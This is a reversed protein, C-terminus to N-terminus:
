PFVLRSKKSWGVLCMSSQFLPVIMCCRARFAVITRKATLSWFGPWFDFALSWWSHRSFRNFSHFFPSISHKNRFPRMIWRRICFDRLFLLGGFLALIKALSTISPYILEARRKRLSASLPPTKGSVLTTIRCSLSVGLPASLSNLHVTTQGQQLCGRSPM